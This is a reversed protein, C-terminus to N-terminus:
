DPSKAGFISSTLLAFVIFIDFLSYEGRPKWEIELVKAMEAVMRYLRGCIERYQWYQRISLVEELPFIGHRSM